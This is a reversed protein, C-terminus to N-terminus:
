QAAEARRVLEAVGDKITEMEAWFDHQSVGKTILQHVLSLLAEMVEDDIERPTRDDSM